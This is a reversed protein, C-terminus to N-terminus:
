RNRMIEYTLRIGESLPTFSFDPFVAQLKANDYDNDVKDKTRERQDIEPLGTPLQEVEKLVDQFTYSKGACINLVGSFNSLVARRTLEVLDDIYIFERRETGDGWLTITENHISKYTFGSPGYQPLDGGGYATPPRFCILSGEPCVKRLIREASFKSIGYYSTPKVPTEETMTPHQVDEGYVAGSSFYILKGVPAAEVTRALHTIMTMNREFSALTDGEQRKVAALFILAVDEGLQSALREWDSEDEFNVDPASYGVLELEPNNVKICKMLTQGIFGSHGLVLVKQIPM